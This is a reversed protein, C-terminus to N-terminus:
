APLHLVEYMADGLRKVMAATTFQTSYLERSAIGMRIRLDPDDILKILADTLSAPEPTPLLFGNIENHVSQGIAGRDTSVIPLGAALAEVISWPHGEPAKPAFVFVDSDALVQWKEEGSVSSHLHCNGMGDAINQCAERYPESDWSGFAHFEWPPLNARQALMQLARLLELLGKGPLYNALYTIRLPTKGAKRIEPFSYDGGNPVVFIKQNPVIGEFIYRLNDGLVIAGDLRRMASMAVVKRLPDLREFWDRWESGRLQILVKVGARSALHIFRADKFFGASTQGIPILVLAPKVSLLMERFSRYMRRITLLKSFRLTGMDAVNENIRSDFHHLEFREQLSSELIIKTAVAPGIYPPPLKGIILVPPREM